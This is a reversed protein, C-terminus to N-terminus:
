DRLIVDMTILIGRETTDIDTIRAFLTKGADMLAAPVVNDIRPIFGLKVQEKTYVEVALEDVWNDPARKLKLDEGPYLHQALEEAGGVRSTGAIFTRFLIVEQEFPKPLDKAQESHFLSVYSGPSNVLSNAM